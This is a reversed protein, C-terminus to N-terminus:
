HCNFSIEEYQNNIESKIILKPGIEKEFFNDTATLWWIIMVFSM